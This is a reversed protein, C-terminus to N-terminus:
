TLSKENSVDLVITQYFTQDNFRENFSDINKNKLDFLVQLVKM